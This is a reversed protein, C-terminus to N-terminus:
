TVPQSKVWFFRGRFFQSDFAPHAVRSASAKVVLGILPNLSPCLGGTTDYADRSEPTFFELAKRYRHRWSALAVWDGVRGQRGRTSSLIATLSAYGGGGWGWHTVCPCGCPIATGWGHLSAHRLSLSPQTHILPNSHHWRTIHEQLFAPPHPTPPTPTPHAPSHGRHSRVLLSPVSGKTPQLSVWACTCPRKCEWQCVCAHESVSYTTLLNRVRTYACEHM